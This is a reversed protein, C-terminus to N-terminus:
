RDENEITLYGKVKEFRCGNMGKINKLEEMEQFAGNDRRYDIIREALKVGIGSVSMLLQKDATNLNVKGIDKFIWATVKTAPLNARLFHLGTGALAVAALFLVAQREQQTMNFM